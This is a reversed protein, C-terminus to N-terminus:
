FCTCTLPQLVQSEQRIKSISVGFHAANCATFALDIGMLLSNDSKVFNIFSVPPESSLNAINQYSMELRRPLPLLM